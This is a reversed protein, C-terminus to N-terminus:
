NWMGEVNPGLNNVSIECKQKVLVASQTVKCMQNECVADNTRKDSSIVSRECEQKRHLIEQGNISKEKAQTKKTHSLTDFSLKNRDAYLKNNNRMELDGGEAPVMTNNNLLAHASECCDSIEFFKRESEEVDSLLATHVLEEAEQTEGSEMLKAQFEDCSQSPFFKKCHGEFENQRLDNRNAELSQNRGVKTLAQACTEPTILTPQISTDPDIIGLGDKGFDNQTFDEESESESNVNQLEAPLPPQPTQSIQIANQNDLQEIEATPLSSSDPTLHNEPPDPSLWTSNTEPFEMSSPPDDSLNTRENKASQWSPPPTNLISSITQLLNVPHNAGLCDSRDDESSVDDFTLVNSQVKQEERGFNLLPVFSEMTLSTAKRMQLPSFKEKLILNNKQLPWAGCSARMPDGRSPFASKLNILSDDISKDNLEFAMPQTQILLSPKEKGLSAPLFYTQTQESNSSSISSSNPPENSEDEEFSDKGSGSSNSSEEATSSAVEMRFQWTIDGESYSRQGMNLQKSIEGEDKGIEEENHYHSQRFDFVTEFSLIKKLRPPPPSSSNETKMVRKLAEKFKLYNSRQLRLPFVPPPLSGKTEKDSLFKFRSNFSKESKGEADERNSTDSEIDFDKKKKKSRCGSAFNSPLHKLRTAVGSPRPLAWCRGKEPRIKHRSNREVSGRRVCKQRKTDEGIESSDKESSSCIGGKGMKKLIGRETSRLVRMLRKQEGRRSNWCNLFFLTQACLTAVGLIFVLDLM